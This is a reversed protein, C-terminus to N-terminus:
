AAVDIAATQVQVDEPFPTGEDRLVELCLEIAERANAIAEDVSHGYTHVNPLAPVTVLYVDDERTLIITYRKM